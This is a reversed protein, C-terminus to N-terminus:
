DAWSSRAQIGWRGDSKTVIYLSKYSGILSGDARFRSFQVRFHVKDTGVDVPEVYDWSSSAWGTSQGQRDWVAIKLDAPTEMVSVNDGHFRVHPFHFWRARLAEVDEANFATMFGDMPVRAETVINTETASM